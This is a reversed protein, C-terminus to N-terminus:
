SAPLGNSRDFRQAINSWHMITVLWIFLISACLSASAALPGVVHVGRMFAVVVWLPIALSVMARAWRKFWLAGILGVTVLACFAWSGVLVLIPFPVPFSSGIPGVDINASELLVIDIRHFERALLMLVMTVICMTRYFRVSITRL